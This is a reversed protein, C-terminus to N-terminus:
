ATGGATSQDLWELYPVHGAEIPLAILEPLEYPHEAVLTRRLEDFRAACTKILLLCEQDSHLEGKWAYISRVGPLVNVCAALGREVLVRALREAQEASPATSLALLRASM